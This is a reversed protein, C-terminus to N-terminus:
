LCIDSIISISYMGFVEEDCGSPSNHVGQIDLVLASQTHLLKRARQLGELHEWEPSPCTGDTILSLDQIANQDFNLFGEEGFVQDPVCPLM